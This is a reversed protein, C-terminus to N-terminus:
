WPFNTQKVSVLPSKKDRRTRPPVTPPPTGDREGDGNVERGRRSEKPPLAPPRDGADTPGTMGPVLTHQYDPVQQLLYTPDSDQEPSSLDGASPATTSTTKTVTAASTQQQKTSNMFDSVAKGTPQLYKYNYCIVM